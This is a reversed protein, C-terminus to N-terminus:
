LIGRNTSESTPVAPCGSAPRGDGGSRPSKQTFDVDKGQLDGMTAEVDDCVFHLEHETPGDSPPV